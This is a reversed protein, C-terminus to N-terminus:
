LSVAVNLFIVGLVNQKMLFYDPNSSINLDSVFFLYNYKEM